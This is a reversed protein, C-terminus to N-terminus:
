RRIELDDLERTVEYRGLKRYLTSPDHRAGRRRADQQRGREPARVPHVRARRRRAGSQRARARRRAARQAAGDGRPLAAAVIEPVEVADRARELANELSACTAPCDYAMIAEVADPGLHAPGGKREQAMRALVGRRAGPHRRPPNRLPPLHISIVNLRYFLDSRFRGARM